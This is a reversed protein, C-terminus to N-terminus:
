CGKQLVSGFTTPVSNAIQSATIPMGGRGTPLRESFGAAQAAALGHLGVAAAAAGSMLTPTLHTGEREVQQSLAALLAAIVGALVDGSGATAGWGCPASYTYTPGGPVAVCTTAGKLVVLCGALKALDRAGAVVNRDLEERSREEGLQKFMAAGEGTHPTAVVLPNQGVWQRIGLLAGADVVLPRPGEAWQGAVAEAQLVMSSDWGSGIVAVDARGAGVVVEPFSQLVLNECREPGAYRVLGAGAGLAGHVGLVAAGPYTPSGTALLVSGRSYKNDNPGPVRLQEAIFAQNIEIM